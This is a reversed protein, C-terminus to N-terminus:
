TLFSVWLTERHTYSLDCPVHEDVVLKGGDCRLGKMVFRMASILLLDYFLVWSAFTATLFWRPMPALRLLVFSGFLVVYATLVGVSLDRRHDHTWESLGELEVLVTLAQFTTSSGGDDHRAPGMKLSLSVLFSGTCFQKVVIPISWTRSLDAKCQAIFALTDEERREFIPGNRLLQAWLAAVFLAPVVTVATLFVAQLEEATAVILGTSMLGSLLAVHAAALTLPDIYRSKNSARPRGYQSLTLTSGVVRAVPVLMSVFPFAVPMSSGDALLLSIGRVSLYLAVSVLLSVLGILKRQLIQCGPAARVTWAVRAMDVALILMFPVVYLFSVGEAVCTPTTANTVALALGLCWPLAHHLM